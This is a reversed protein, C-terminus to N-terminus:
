RKGDTLKKGTFVLALLALIQIVVPGGEGKQPAAGERFFSDATWGVVETSSAVAAGLAANGVFPLPGVLFYIALECSVIGTLGAGLIGAAKKDLTAGYLEAIALVMTSQIGAVIPIWTGTAQALACASAASSIAAGHIVKDVASPRERPRGGGSSEQTDSM